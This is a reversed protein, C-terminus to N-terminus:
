KKLADGMRGTLQDFMMNTTIASQRTQRLKPPTALARPCVAASGGFM